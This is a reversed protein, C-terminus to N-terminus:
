SQRSRTCSQTPTTTSGISIAAEAYMILLLLSCHNIASGAAYQVTLPLIMIIISSVLLLLYYLILIM